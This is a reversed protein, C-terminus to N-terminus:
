AAKNLEGKELAQIVWQISKVAEPDKRNNRADGLALTLVDLAAQRNGQQFEKIAEAIAVQYWPESKKEQQTNWADQQIAQVSEEDSIPRDLVEQLGEMDNDLPQNPEQEM